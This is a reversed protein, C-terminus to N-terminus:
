RWREVLESFQRQFLAWRLRRRKERAKRRDRCAVCHYGFFITNYSKRSLHIACYSPVFVLLLRLLQRRLFKLFSILSEGRAVTVVVAGEKWGGGM